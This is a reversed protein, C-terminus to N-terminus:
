VEWQENKISQKFFVLFFTNNNKHFIIPRIGIVDLIRKLTIDKTSWKFILTGNPKLVRMCEDFGKKIDTPWTESLKGYKKCLWSNQGVKLLHPPDFIVLSFSNDELPINRFDAIIDPHIELKRGDCLTDEFDRIDMFLVDPNNKDFHFMKSGCCVDLIKKNKNEIGCAECLQQSLSKNTM